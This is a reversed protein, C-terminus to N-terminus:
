KTPAPGKSEVGEGQGPGAGPKVKVPGNSPRRENPESPRDQSSSDSPPAKADVAGGSDAALAGGGISAAALACALRIGRVRVIKSSNPM